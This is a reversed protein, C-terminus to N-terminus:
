DELFIELKGDEYDWAEIRGFEFKTEEDMRLEETIDLDSIGDLGYEKVKEDFLISTEIIFKKM